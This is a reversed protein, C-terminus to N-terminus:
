SSLLARACVEVCKDPYREALLTLSPAKFGKGQKEPLMVCHLATIQSWSARIYNDKVQQADSDSEEEESDESLSDGMHATEALLQAGKIHSMFTNAISVVALLHQTTLLRSLGWRHQQIVSLNVQPALLQSSLKNTLTSSPQPPHFDGMGWGPLVLSFAHARSCMGFSIPRVPKLLGVNSELDHDLSTDASWAHLCSLLLRVIDIIQQTWEEHLQEGRESAVKKGHVEKGMDDLGRRRAHIYERFGVQMKRQQVQNPKDFLEKAKSLLNIITQPNFLLIQVVPDSPLPHLNIVSLAKPETTDELTPSSISDKLVM